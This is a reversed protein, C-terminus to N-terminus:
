KKCKKIFFTKIRSCVTQNSEPIDKYEDLMRQVRAVTMAILCCHCTDPVDYASDQGGPCSAFHGNTGEKEYSAAM